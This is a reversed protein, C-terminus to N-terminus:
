GPLLAQTYKNLMSVSFSFFYPDCYIPLSKKRHTQLDHRPVDEGDLGV